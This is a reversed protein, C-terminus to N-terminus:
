ERRVAFYDVPESRWTNAFVDYVVPVSESNDTLTDGTVLGFGFVAFVGDVRGILANSNALTCPFLAHADIGTSSIYPATGTSFTEFITDENYAASGSANGDANSVPNRHPWFVYGSATRAEGRDQNSTAYNNAEQWTGDVWRIYAGNNCPDPLCSHGFNNTQFSRSTGDTSGTILLPYPYQNRTGFQQIFGLHVLVDSTGIRAIAMIRRANAYLWIDMSADDFAAYCSPSVGPMTDWDLVNNFATYGRMEWGWINAGSNRYTKFGVIIQDAPDSGPGELYVEGDTAFGSGPINPQSGGNTLVTWREGLPVEVGDTFDPHVAPDLSGAAYDRLKRLLDMFDTATGIAYAM